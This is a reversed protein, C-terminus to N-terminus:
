LIAADDALWVHIQYRQLAPSEDDLTGLPDRGMRGEMLVDDSEWAMADCRAEDPAALALLQEADQIGISETPVLSGDERHLALDLASVHQLAEALDAFRTSGTLRLGVISQADDGGAGGQAYARLAPLVARIAPM